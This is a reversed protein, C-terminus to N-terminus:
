DTGIQRWHFSTLSSFFDFRFLRRLFVFAGLSRLGFNSAARGRLVEAVFLHEVERELSIMDM